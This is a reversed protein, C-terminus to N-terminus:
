LLGSGVRILTISGILIILALYWAHRNKLHGTKFWVLGSLLFITAFVYLAYPEGTSNEYTKEESLKTVQRIQQNFYTAKLLVEDGELLNNYIEETFQDDIGSFYVNYTTTGSKARYSSQKSVVVTEYSKYPLFAEVFTLVGSLMPILTLYKLVNTYKAIDM